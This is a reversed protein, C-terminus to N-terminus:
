CRSPNEKDHWENYQLHWSDRRNRAMGHATFFLSCVERCSLNEKAQVISVPLEVANILLWVFLDFFMM